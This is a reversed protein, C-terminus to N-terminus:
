SAKRGEIHVGEQAAVRTVDDLSIQFWYEEEGHYSFCFEAEDADFGGVYRGEQFM